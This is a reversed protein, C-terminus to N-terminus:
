APNDLRDLLQKKYLPSLPLLRDGIKLEYTDIFQIHPLAIIYSKHIQMFADPLSDLAEQVTQRTMIKKSGLHYHMYNGDKELYHIQEIKVKHLRTGDKLYLFQVSPIGAPATQQQTFLKSIAKAFREFTVPKLLYDVAAVEYSEAAYEAYATTFIIRVDPPLIKSLSLGSLQPMNIDLFVVDVPQKNLFDLAKLGNRFTAVVELESFRTAYSEMLQIARPEDDIILAKM